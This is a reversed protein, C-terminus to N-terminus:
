NNATQMTKSLLISFNVRSINTHFGYITDSIGNTINHFFLTQIADEFPHGEPVDSFRKQSDGTLGFARVLVAAMEGRTLEESRNFEGGTGEFIGAKKAAAIQRYFTDGVKVDTFGTKNVDPTPLNRARVFMLAAEMRTLTKKPRFTGDDFGNIIGQASLMAVQEFGRHNPSTENFDLFSIKNDLYSSAVFGTDGNKTKVPYWVYHNNISTSYHRKGKILVPEGLELSKIEEGGPTERLALNDVTTPHVEGVKFSHKTETLPKSIKYNLKNTFLMVPSNEAYSVNLDAAPVQRVSLFGKTEMFGYIKDQYTYDNYRPDNRISRGNYAMIAFYWNEIKDMSGKNITPIAYKGTGNKLDWKNLLIEVGEQINFEIDEKLRKIYADKEPGDDMFRYDSVQMIGIGICDFGIKTEGAKWNQCAKADPNDYSWYHQWNSEAYAIAKLIEPPINNKLAAETLMRSIEEAPPNKDSTSQTHYEQKLQKEVEDVLTVEKNKLQYIQEVYVSPSVLADGDMYKPFSITIKDGNISIKGNMYDESHFIENVGSDSLSFIDISLFSGTGSMRSEIILHEETVYAKEIIGFPFDEEYLLGTESEIKYSSNEDNKVSLILGNQLEISEQKNNEFEILNGERNSEACIVSSTLLIFIFVLFITSLKKNLKM